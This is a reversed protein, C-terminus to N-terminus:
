ESWDANLKECFGPDVDSYFTVARWYYKCLYKTAEVM